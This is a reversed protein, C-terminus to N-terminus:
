LKFQFFCLWCLLRTEGRVLESYLHFVSLCIVRNFYGTLPVTGTCQQIQHTSRLLLSGQRRKPRMATPTLACHQATTIARLRCLTLSPCCPCLVVFVEGNDQWPHIECDCRNSRLFRGSRQGAEQGLHIDAYPRSQKRLNLEPRHLFLGFGVTTWGQFCNEANKFRWRKSLHREGRSHGPSRCFINRGVWLFTNRM